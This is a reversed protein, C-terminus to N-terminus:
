NPITDLIVIWNMDDADMIDATYTSKSNKDYVVDGIHTSQYNINCMVGEIEVQEM